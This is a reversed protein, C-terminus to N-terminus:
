WRSRIMSRGRRSAPKQQPPGSRITKGARCAICCRTWAPERPATIRRNACFTRTDGVLMVQRACRPRVGPAGDIETGRELPFLKSVRLRRDRRACECGLHEVALDTASGASSVPRQVRRIRTTKISRESRSGPSRFIAIRLASGSRLSSRDARVAAFEVDTRGGATEAIQAGTGDFLVSTPNVGDAARPRASDPKMVVAIAATTLFVDTNRPVPVRRHRPSRGHRTRVM